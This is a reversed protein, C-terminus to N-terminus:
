KIKEPGLFTTKTRDLEKNGSSLKFHMWTKRERLKEKSTELFLSGKLTQDPLIVTPTEGVFKITVDPNEISLDIDMVKGSKNTFQYNYLNSIKGDETTQYLKGPTRLVLAEVESRNALLFINAIILVGLISSYVIARPTFIKRKGSEIGNYSDYRILGTPRNVKTMVQDCADICATCNICELQTGNRIDIGTPCVHICLKCDICDGLKDLVPTLEAKKNIKGRPEGRLWDYSIVISNKDLLVGQLRGYPCITTCVQERLRAFVFYFAGSFLLMAIFGSQHSTIPESIIKIVQDLGIIYSLFVNSILVAIAFFIAHKSIRKILKDTTWPAAALRKQAPSDGEIWYEIKRFVSEMFITQPCIWGCFIRGYVVTFLIIFVIFTLMLFLFLHFDQPYFVMGLLIFKRELINLMVFPEGNLKIFPIIFLIALLLGSVYNRWKTFKGSPMKPFLWIRKGSKDVTAISDRFSDAEDYILGAQEEINTLLGDSSKLKEM